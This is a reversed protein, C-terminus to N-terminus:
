RDYYDEDRMVLKRLFKGAIVIFVFSIFGFFGYFNIFREEPFHPHKFIYLGLFDLVDAGATIICLGVLAWILFDVHRPDDLWYTKEGPKM